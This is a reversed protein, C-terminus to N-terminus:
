AASPIPPPGAPRIIREFQNRRPLHSAFTAIERPMEFEPQKLNKRVKWSSSCTLM